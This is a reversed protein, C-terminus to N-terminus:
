SRISSCLEEEFDELYVTVPPIKEFSPHSLIIRNITNELHSPTKFLPPSIPTNEKQSFTDNGNDIITDNLTQHGCKRM